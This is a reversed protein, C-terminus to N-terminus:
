APAPAAAVANLPLVVEFYHQIHELCQRVKLPMNDRHRVTVYVDFGGLTWDPLVQVLRGARLDDDIKCELLRTIGHGDLALYRLSRAHNASIRPQLRVRVTGSAANSFELFCPEGHPNFLLFDHHLLDVPSHIPPRVALYSPSACLVDSFRGLFIDGPQRNRGARLALDIRQEILDVNNDAVELRLRVKPNHRIFDHLAPILYKTSMFSSVAIRVEGVMENNLVAISQEAESAATVIHACHKYFLTGAETLSLKRTSRNLLTAQLSLELARVHQSVSSTTLGLAKAARSFAGLEVVRAFTAM